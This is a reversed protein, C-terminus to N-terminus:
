RRYFVIQSMVIANTKIVNMSSRRSMKMKGRIYPLPINGIDNENVEIINTFYTDKLVNTASPRKSPDPKLVRRFFRLAGDPMGNPFCFFGNIISQTLTEESQQSFPIEGILSYALTVGLSWIDAKLPNHIKKLLIEPSAYALSYHFNNNFGNSSECVSIGFDALKPRGFSDFLINQPKIDHHAVKKSHSYELAEIIQKSISKFRAEPLPGYKEIEDSLSGGPCYELILVYSQNHVFYEYLRIINPHDLKMLSKVENDFSMKMEYTNSCIKIVKAAFLRRFKISEVLYVMSYGGRNLYDKIRYGNIDTGIDMPQVFDEM